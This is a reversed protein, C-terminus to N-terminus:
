ARSRRSKHKRSRHKRKTNSRNKRRKGGRPPMQPNGIPLGNPGIPIDFEPNNMRPRHIMRFNPASSNANNLNSNNNNTNDSNNNIKLSAFNEKLDNLDNNEILFSQSDSLMTDTNATSDIHKSVNSTNNNAVEIKSASNAAETLFGSSSSHM